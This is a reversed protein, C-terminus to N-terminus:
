AHEVVVIQRDLRSTQMVHNQLPDLGFAATQIGPDVTSNKCM